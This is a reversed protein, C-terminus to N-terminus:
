GDNFRQKSGRDLADLDAPAAKFSTKASRAQHFNEHINQFFAASEPSLSPQMSKLAEAVDEREIVPRETPESVTEGRATADQFNEIVRRTACASCEDIFAVIDAGTCGGAQRAVSEMYKMDVSAAFTEDRCAVRLIIVRADADPMPCYLLHDLRGPRLIAPDILDPRTTACIVYVGVLSDVGDLLTLFQNVMRDSVGGDSSGRRPVLSEFEDFFLACPAADQARKFLRRLTAESEGYYKSFLEPGKITISRLKANAIAAQALATKGCGPAGYLLVGTPLPLPCQAFIKPYRAPLAMADDLVAKVDDLGGITEFGDVYNDVGQTKDDKALNEQDIPVYGDLAKNMDMTLLRLAVPPADEADSTKKAVGATREREMASRIAKDIITRLDIVDFGITRDAYMDPIDEALEVGAHAAYSTLVDRRADLDPKGVEFEYGFIEEDHLPKSLAERESATAIFCVADDSACEYMEDALLAALHYEDADMDNGDDQNVGCISELNMLYCVAPRRAKAAEIGARIADLAKVHPKPLEECDIEVVCSLAKIDRMMLRCLAKIMRSRGREKSGTILTAPCMGVGYEVYRYSIADFWLNTKLRKLLEDAHARLKSGPIHALVDDDPIFPYLTVGPAPNRMLTTKPPRIPAGLELRIGGGRTQDSGSMNALVDKLRLAVGCDPSRIRLSAPYTLELEFTAHQNEVDPIDFVLRTKSNILVVDKAADNDESDFSCHARFWTLFLAKAAADCTGSTVIADVDAEPANLGLVVAYTPGLARALSLMTRRKTFLEDGAAPDPFNPWPLPALVPRLRASFSKPSVLSSVNVEKIRIMDGQFLELAAATSECLAMHSPAVIDDEDVVVVRLFLQTLDDDEEDPADAFRSFDFERDADYKFARIFSGHRVNHEISTDKSVAVIGTWPVHLKQAFSHNYEVDAGRTKMFAVCKEGALQLRLVTSTKSEDFTKAWDNLCFANAYPDDGSNKVASWPEIILETNPVLRAVNTACEPAISKVRLFLPKGGGPAYFPVAQGVAALGIQSLATSELAEAQALVAEWDDASLPAVSVSEANVIQEEAGFGFLVEDGDEIELVSALAHPIGIRKEKEGGPTVGGAWAVHVTTRRTEADDKKLTLEVHAPFVTAARSRLTAAVIDPPLSVFACRDHIISIVRVRSIASLDVSVSDGTSVASGRVM